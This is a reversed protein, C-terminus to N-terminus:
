TLETLSAPINRLNSKAIDLMKGVGGDLVTAAAARGFGYLMSMTIDPPISLANPDTVIDVLQPGPASLAHALKDRVCRPDTIRVSPIGMANGIAAFDVKNHDTQFEQLGAVLMELKVMGLSSNNFCIVKVPLQHLKITLLEGMLMGLGGDGSWSIVQRDPFAAQVGIAMPLANAM